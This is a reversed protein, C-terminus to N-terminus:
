VPNMPPPQWGGFAREIEEAVAITLHDNNTNAMIQLGVPLGAKNIGMPCHTSPLALVNAIVLYIINCINMYFEGPYLAPSVFTPFILVGNDDLLEEFEKKLADKKAYVYHCSKFLKRSIWRLMVFTLTPMTIESTGIFCKLMELLCEFPGMRDIEETLDFKLELLVMFMAFTFQMNPLRAKEVKLNYTEEMHIKLKNIAQKIDENLSNTIPCCHDLYFYRLEKLSVKQELNKRVKESQCMNKLMLSLDEAYRVMTCTTFELSSKFDPIHGGRPIIDPTTKHGFVGCFLAPIRASGALDSAVGVISAASSILAGEGGSSGSCTKNTDYPNWTTGTVYNTSNYHLCLEPTNSVVTVIAGAKRLLSVAEADQTARRSINKKVGASHSMGKVAFSEKVTIPVGFLPKKHALEEETIPTSALFEDVERAEEIAKDYRQDVIANLVPNVAICREVYARVVEESSIQKRRIARAIKTASILLLHNKITPIRKQKKFRQLRLIPTLICSLLLFSYKLLKQIVLNTIDLYDCNALNKAFTGSTHGLTEM